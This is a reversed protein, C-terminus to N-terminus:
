CKALAQYYGTKKGRRYDAKRKELGKNYILRCCGLTQEILCRQAKNPYLRLKIAKFM